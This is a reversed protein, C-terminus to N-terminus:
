DQNNEVKDGEELLFVTDMHILDAVKIIDEKTVKEVEKIRKLYNDRGLIDFGSM